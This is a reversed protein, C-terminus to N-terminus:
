PKGALGCYGYITERPIGDHETTEWRWAMCASGICCSHNAFSNGPWRNAGAIPGDPRDSVNAFPCWRIKAEDETM